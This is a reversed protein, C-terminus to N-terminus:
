KDRVLTLIVCVFTLLCLKLDALMILVLVFICLLTIGMNRILEHGITENVTWAVYEQFNM